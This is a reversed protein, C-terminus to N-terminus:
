CTSWASFSKLRNMQEKKMEMSPHVYKQLTTNVTAHGLIESLSKPDFGSEICRTAFTHRLAHFTYPELALKRLIRKYKDLCCRPELYHLSGTLIYADAPCSHESLFDLIFVPLLISRVSNETKPVDIQIRTKSTNRGIIINQLRLMTKTVHLTGNKLHIDKWQLACLEGIRLGSYLSILIGLCIPEPHSIIYKELRAQEEKSIVKIEAPKTKPYFIKHNDMCPYKHYRAYELVQLIVSRIDSVTKPSLGGKGDLRGSHLKEKLFFDIIEPTITSLHYAGLEPLIHNELLNKYHILSSEKITDKRSALWCYMVESFLVIQKSSITKKNTLLEDLTVGSMENRKERVEAYSHGYISRYKAKGNADYGAIIRAEWRGDKRKRINEGRRSM